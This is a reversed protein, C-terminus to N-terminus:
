NKGNKVRERLEEIEKAMLYIQSRIIDYDQIIGDTQQAAMERGDYYFEKIIKTIEDM